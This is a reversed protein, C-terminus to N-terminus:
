PRLPEHLYNLLLTVTAATQGRNRALYESTQGHWVAAMSAADFPKRGQALLGGLLGTLLDGSGGKALVPSGFPSVFLRKGNTIWTLPGKLLVTHRFDNSKVDAHVSEPTIAKALAGSIRAMEGLHPTLVAPGELAAVIDPQLADADLVVPLQTEKLIEQMMVQTEHEAGMGPGM